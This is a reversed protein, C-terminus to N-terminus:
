SRIEVCPIVEIKNDKLFQVVKAEKAYEPDSRYVVTTIRAGAILKACTMCPPGNVILACGAVSDYSHILANQEAHIAICSDYDSGHPAESSARPCAGETCHGYGPPSGNYGSSVVTGDPRLIFAGYQRRTCTSFQKALTDTVNVWKLLKRLRKAEVRAGAM